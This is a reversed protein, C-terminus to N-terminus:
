FPVLVYECDDVPEGPIWFHNWEFVLLRRCYCSCEEFVDYASMTRARIYDGVVACLELIDEVLERTQISHSSDLGRWVIRASICTHLANM